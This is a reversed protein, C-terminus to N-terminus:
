LIKDRESDSWDAYQNVSLKYDSANLNHEQIYVLNAKFITFRAEYEQQTLYSKQFRSIFKNFARQTM